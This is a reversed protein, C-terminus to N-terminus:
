CARVESFPTHKAYVPRVCLTCVAYTCAFFAPAHGRGGFSPRHTTKPPKNASRQPSKQGKQQMLQTLRLMSRQILQRVAAARLSPSSCSASLSSRSWTFGSAMANSQRISRRTILWTIKEETPQKMFAPQLPFVLDDRPGPSNSCLITLNAPQSTGFPASYGKPNTNVLRELASVSGAHFAENENQQYKDGDVHDPHEAGFAPRTVGGVFAVFGRRVFVSGDYLSGFM